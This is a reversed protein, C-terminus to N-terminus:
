PWVKRWCTRVREGHQYTSYELGGPVTPSGHLIETAGALQRVSVVRRVYLPGAFFQDGPELIRADFSLNM